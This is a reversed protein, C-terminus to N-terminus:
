AEPHHDLIQELEEVLQAIASLQEQEVFNSFVSTSRAPYRAGRFLDKNFHAVIDAVKVGRELAAPVQAWVRLAAAAKAADEGWTFNHAPDASSALKAAFDAITAKAANIRFDATKAVAAQATIKTM